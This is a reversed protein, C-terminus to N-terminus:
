TKNYCFTKYNDDKNNNMFNPSKPFSLTLQTHSHSRVIKKNLFFSLFYNANKWQWIHKNGRVRMCMCVCTLIKYGNMTSEFSTVSVYVFYRPHLNGKISSLGFRGGGCIAFVCNNSKYKHIYRSWRSKKFIWQHIISHFINTFILLLLSKEKCMASIFALHLLYCHTFVTAEDRKNEGTTRM